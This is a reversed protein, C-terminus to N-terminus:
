VEFTEYNFDFFLDSSDNPFLSDCEWAFDYEYAPAFHSDSDLPLYMPAMKGREAWQPTDVDQIDIGPLAGQVVTPSPPNQLLPAEQSVTPSPPNQPLLPVQTVAPSSPKQPLPAEQTVAPSPPKQPLLPEQPVNMWPQLAFQPAQEPEDSKSTKHRALKTVPQDECSEDKEQATRKKSRNRVAPESKLRCSTSKVMSMVQVQAAASPAIFNPDLLTKNRDFARTKSIPKRGPYMLMPGARVPPPQSPGNVEALLADIEEQTNPPAAADASSLRMIVTSVCFVKVILCVRASCCMTYHCARACKCEALERKVNSLPVGPRMGRLRDAQQVIQPVTEPSSAELEVLIPEMVNTHVAPVVIVVFFSGVSGAWTFHLLNANSIASLLPNESFTSNLFAVPMPGPRYM